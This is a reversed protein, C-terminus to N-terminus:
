SNYAIVTGSGTTFATTTGYLIFGAPFTVGTVTGTLNGTYSSLTGSTVFQLAYFSGSASGTATVVAGGKNGFSHDVIPIPNGVDNAIEIGNGLQTLVSARFNATSLNSAIEPFQSM